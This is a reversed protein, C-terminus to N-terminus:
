TVVFPLAADGGMPFPRKTCVINTYRRGRLQSVLAVFADRGQLLKLKGAGLEYIHFNLDELLDIYGTWDCDSATQIGAPWL